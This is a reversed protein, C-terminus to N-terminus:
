KEEVDTGGGSDSSCGATIMSFIALLILRAKM